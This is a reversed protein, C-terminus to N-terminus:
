CKQLSVHLAHWLHMLHHSHSKYVITRVCVHARLRSYLVHVSIGEIISLFTHWAISLEQREWLHWYLRLLYDVYVDIACSYTRPLICTVQHACTIMHYTQWFGHDLIYLAKPYRRAPHPIHVSHAMKQWPDITSLSYNLCIIIPNECQAEKNVQQMNCDVSEGVSASFLFSACRKLYAGTCFRM